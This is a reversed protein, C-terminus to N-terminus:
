VIREDRKEKWITFMRHKKCITVYDNNADLVICVPTYMEHWFDGPKPNIAHDEEMQNELKKRAHCLFNRKESARKMQDEVEGIM